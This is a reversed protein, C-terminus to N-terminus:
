PFIPTQGQLRQTMHLTISSLDVVHEVASPLANRIGKVHSAPPNTKLDMVTKLRQQFEVRVKWPHDRNHRHRPRCSASKYQISGPGAETMLM